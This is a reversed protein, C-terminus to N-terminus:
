HTDAHRMETANNICKASTSVESANRLTDAGQHSYLSSCHPTPVEDPRPGLLFNSAWSTPDLDAIHPQRVDQLLLGTM